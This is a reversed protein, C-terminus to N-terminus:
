ATGLEPSNAGALELRYALLLMCPGVRAGLFRDYLNPGWRLPSPVYQDWNTCPLYYFDASAFGIGEIARMVQRPTNMRYYAPYSNVGEARAAFVQKLGLREILRTLRCFPHRGHPTLAWFVGGPKLVAGVKEFFPRPRAIHEVVNYSYAADYSGNPIQAVEFPAHWRCGLSPHSLVAADIDVGDLQAARQQVGDIAPPVASGCGIDLVRGRMGAEQFLLDRFRRQFSSRDAMLQRYTGLRSAHARSSITM